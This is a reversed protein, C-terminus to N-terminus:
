TILEEECHEFFDVVYLHIPDYFDHDFVNNEYVFNAEVNKMKRKLLAQYLEVLHKPTRFTFYTVLASKCQM